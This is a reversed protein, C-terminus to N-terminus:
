SFLRQWINHGRVAESFLEASANGRTAFNVLEAIFADFSRKGIVFSERILSIQVM